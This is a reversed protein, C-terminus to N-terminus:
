SLDPLLGEERGRGAEDVGIVFDYGRGYLEKELEFNSKQMLDNYCKEKEKELIHYLISLKWNQIKFKSDIKIKEIDSNQFILDNL